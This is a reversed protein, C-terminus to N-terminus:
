EPLLQGGGFTPVLLHFELAARRAFDALLEEDDDPFPRDVVYRVLAVGDVLEDSPTFLPAGIAAPHPDGRQVQPRRPDAAPRAAVPSSAM